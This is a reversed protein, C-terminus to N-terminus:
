PQYYHCIKVVRNNKLIYQLVWIKNQLTTCTYQVIRNGDESLLIKGVNPDEYYLNRSTDQNPLQGYDKYVATIESESSGFGVGRPAEAIQQNMDLRVLQWKNSVLAFVATGWSYDLQRAESDLHLYKTETEANPSGFAQKFDELSTENLKIHSFTDEESYVALPYPKCDFKYGVEMTSSQKGYGNVAVARLTVRGTPMTIPTGDFIPSLEPDPLSGDITYYFTLSDQKALQETTKKRREERTEGTDGARLSVSKVSSYTNPALNSKPAAPTPYFVTYSASLEDSVLNESVAVARLTFTGEPITVIDDELLTGGEPLTVENDLTYYVDYGQPSTVTIQQELEYRGALHESDVQPTNPILDRRQQRYSDRDTNTYALLMMDAAEPKRDTDLYLNILATYAETRSPSVENVLRLYLTEAQEDNNDLEYASGLMLLGDYNDPNLLDAVRFARISDAMDGIEMYDSGVLWYSQAPAKNLDKLLEEKETQRLPDDTTALEFMQENMMLAQKRATARQGEDSNRMYLFYGAGAGMALVVCILAVIMWNIPHAKVMKVRGHKGPVVRHPAANGRVPVGRRTNPRSAFSDLTAKPARRRAARDQELPLPSMDYDGYEPVDRRSEDPIESSQSARRGQRIARVGIERTVMPDRLMEGCNPCLLEENPVFSGCRPCIM